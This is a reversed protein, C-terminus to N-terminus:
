APEQKTILTSALYSADALAALAVEDKILEQGAGGYAQQDHPVDYGQQADYQTGDYGGQGDGPDPHASYAAADDVIGQGDFGNAYGDCWAQQSYENLSPDAGFDVVDFNFASSDFNDFNLHLNSDYPIDLDTANFDFNGNAGAAFETHSEPPQHGVFSGESITTPWTASSLASGSSSEYEFPSQLTPHPQSHSQEQQHHQIASEETLNSNYDCMSDNREPKVPPNFVIPSCPLRLQRWSARGKTASSHRFTWHIVLIRENSQDTPTYIEQIATIARLSDAVDQRHNKTTDLLRMALRGLTRAWFTSGFKIQTEVGDGRESQELRAESSGSHDKLFEGNEYFTNHVKIYSMSSRSSSPMSSPALHRSHCVFSIGLEVGDKEKWTELPFALSAEAVLVNCDLPQRTAMTGLLPFDRNVPNWDSFELVEGLPNSVSHTYTHLRQVEEQTDSVRHKRQVFMQFDTPQFLDLDGKIKQLRFADLRSSALMGTRVAQPPTMVPYKSMRRGSPYAAGGPYHRGGGMDEKSLWRMILPDNEVFPKLVQIHSSVQKRTRAEGTLEEICDAILENRGRQKDKHLWKRRGM